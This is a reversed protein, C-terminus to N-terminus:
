HLPKIAFKRNKENGLAMKLESISPKELWFHNVGLFDDLFHVDGSQILTHGKLDPYTQLAKEKTIHRSIELASFPIDPPIFGLHYILGFAQRNIHAPIFLGGLDTVIHFAEELSINVSTILLQEKRRIFDGTEDVIFQEGFFDPNNEIKPLKSDVLNQLEQLQDFSDFLCLSHVEEETQIEMGPLVVLNEGRAAQIVAQVNESSNHDTIAILNIGLEVAKRVILPPIMEVGACPSLVTHVHLEAQFPKM